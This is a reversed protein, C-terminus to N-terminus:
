APQGTSRVIRAALQRRRGARLVVPYSTPLMLSGVSADGSLMGPGRVAGSSDVGEENGGPGVVPGSADEVASGSSGDSDSVAAVSGCIRYTSRVPLRSAALREILIRSIARRSGCNTRRDSARAHRTSRRAVM